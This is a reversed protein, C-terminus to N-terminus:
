NKQASANPIWFMLGKSPVAPDVLEVNDVNGVWLGALSVETGQRVSPPMHKVDFKARVVFGRQFLGRSESFLVVLVALSILGGFAFLGILANRNRDTM